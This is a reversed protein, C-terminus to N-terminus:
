AAPASAAAAQPKAGAFAWAGAALSSLVSALGTQSTSFPRPLAKTSKWFSTVTDSTFSAARSPKRV